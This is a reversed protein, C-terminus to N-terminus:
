KEQFYKVAARVLNDAGKKMVLAKGNKIVVNLDEVGCLAVPIDSYVFCNKSEIRAAEGAGASHKAFADWSGVDDWTFSAAVMFARETKEALAVDVAIAPTKEYAANMASWDGLANIGGINGFSPLPSQILPAFAEAIEPTCKAIEAIFFDSTFAFMGSNWYCGGDSLYKKATEIDPKETFKKIKFAGSLDARGETQIYGYGTAPETPMIGFTVLNGGSAAKFATESDKVFVAQPEIIHDSTLVLVSHRVSPEILNLLHCCLMLPAATHKPVPEAIILVDKRIKQAENGGRAEALSECQAAVENELGARTAIIIKGSPNLSLARLVANQLFSVGDNISLFQKPFDPCSAPWLREGFGGALIVVDSFM